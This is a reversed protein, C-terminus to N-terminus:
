KCPAFHLLFFLRVNDFILLASANKVSPSTSSQFLLRLAVVGGADVIRAKNQANNNALSMLVGTAAEQVDEPTLCGLLAVLHPIAGASTVISVNQEGNVSLSQLAQVVQLHIESNEPGLLDVLLPIAGFEIVKARNSIGLLGPSDCLSKLTQIAASQMGTPNLPGLLAVLRPIADIAASIIGRNDCKTTAALDRMTTVAALKENRDSSALQHVLNDIYSQPHSHVLKHTYM